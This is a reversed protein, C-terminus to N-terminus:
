AIIEVEPLLRKGGLATVLQLLGDWSNGAQQGKCVADVEACQMLLRRCAALSLREAAQRLLPQRNRWAARLAQGPNEGQAALEHYDALMRIDRALTWLIPIENVGEERLGQLIKVARMLNGQLATDALEFSTYRSSDAVAAIVDEATLPGSEHLLRLKEVEQSAALLNGEVRGSLLQVAEREPQFGAARLRRELWQQTQAPNLPWVQIMVGAKDLAKVWAANRASSELKGAQVLLLTDSPPNQAYAKLAAGGERGPKASPLRLDLIRKEAFLSMAAAEGQLRSWDFGQEVQMVQRETYGAAQAAARIADVAEQLQLPEDGTLFYVPALGQKLHADLQQPQLKM